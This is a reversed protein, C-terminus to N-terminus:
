LYKERQPETTSTALASGPFYDFFAKEIEREQLHRLAQV